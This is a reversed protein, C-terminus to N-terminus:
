SVSVCCQFHFRYSNNIDFSQLPNATSNSNANSSGSGHQVKCKVLRWLSGYSELSDITVTKTDYNCILATPWECSVTPYPMVYSSKNSNSTSQHEIKINSSYYPSIIVNDDLLAEFKMNRKRNFPFVVTANRNVNNNGSTSVTITNNVIGLSEFAETKYGALRSTVENVNIM